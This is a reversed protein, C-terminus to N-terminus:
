AASEWAGQFLRPVEHSGPKALGSSHARGRDPGPTKWLGKRRRGAPSPSLIGAVEGGAM